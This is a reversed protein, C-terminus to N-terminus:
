RKILFNQWLEGTRLSLKQPRISLIAFRPRGRGQRSCRANSRRCGRSGAALEAAKMSKGTEGVYSKGGTDTWWEARLTTRGMTKAPSNFRLSSIDARFARCKRKTPASTTQAFHTGMTACDFWDENFTAAAELSVADPYLWGGFFM